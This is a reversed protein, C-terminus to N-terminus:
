RWRKRGGIMERYKGANFDEAILDATQKSYDQMEKPPSAVFDNTGKAGMRNFGAERLRRFLPTSIAAGKPFEIICFGCDLKSAAKM